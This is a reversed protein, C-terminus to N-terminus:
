VLDKLKKYAKIRVTNHTKIVYPLKTIIHRYTRAKVETVYIKFLGYMEFSEKKKIQNIIVDVLGNLVENIIAESLETKNAIAKVIEKRKRM